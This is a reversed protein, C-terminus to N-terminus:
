MSVAMKALAIISEKSKAVLLFRGNHCFTVDPVGTVKQLDEERLGAWAAPFEKRRAFSHPESAVATARWSGDSNPRIVFLPEPYEMLLEEAPVSRDFIVIRKDESKEYAELAISRAEYTDQKQKIERALIKEALEVMELFILDLQAEDEKWTTRFSYFMSQIIYPTVEGIPNFTSIGNDEADIPQFLKEDIKQTFLRNGTLIDGYEKWVLGCAAYPTGNQRAGAGGKQHHDFRKKAPDYEGGIDFVYDGKAIIEPDRTRKVEFEKGEKKLVMSLVACAFIDDAHFRANHTVLLQKTQEM